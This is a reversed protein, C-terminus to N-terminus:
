RKRLIMGGFRFDLAGANASGDNGDFEALIEYRDIIRSLFTERAFIWCPYSSACISPPVHQVTVRDNEMSAFSTRDIVIYQIRSGMIEDLVQQPRPLYQLVGSLLAVNPAAQEICEAITFYFRLEEDAFLERGCRVFHDQEVVSWQLSTLASLFHRCQFYSSGLSGGFDLVSLRGGHEASARMLGALVPFSHQIRDFAVSDREFAAEGSKVKMTAQRVRELILGSDYGSAHVRADDWRSYIGSYHVDKERRAHRLLQVIVPPLLSRLLRKLSTLGGDQTPRPKAPGNAKNCSPPPM